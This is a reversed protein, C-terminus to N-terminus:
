ATEESQPEVYEKKLVRGVVEWADLAGKHDLVKGKVGKEDYAVTVPDSAKPVHLYAPSQVDFVPEQDVFRVWSKEKVLVGDAPPPSDSKTPKGDVLTGSYMVLSSSNFAMLHKYNYFGDVKDFGTQIPFHFNPFKATSYTLSQDVFNTSIHKKDDVIEGTEEDRKGNFYEVRDLGPVVERVAKLYVDDYDLAPMDADDVVVNGDEDHVEFPIRTDGQVFVACAGSDALVKELVSADTCTSPLTALVIGARACALQLVHQEATDPPLWTLVTSKPAIGLELMGNALADSYKKLEGFTWKM